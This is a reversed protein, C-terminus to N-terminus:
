RVFCFSFLTFGFFLFTFVYSDNALRLVTSTCERRKTMTNRRGTMTLCHVCSLSQLRRMCALRFRQFDYIDVAM